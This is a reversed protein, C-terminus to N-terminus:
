YVKIYTESKLIDLWRDYLEKSRAKRVNEEIDDYAEAFSRTQAVTEDDKRILFSWGDLEVWGSTEGKSLSYIANCIEPRFVDECQIDRWAGGQPAHTDASRRRAVDAFDMTKLEELVTDRLGSESPKLLIVSVSVSDGKMYREPHDAYESRMAAPSATVFKDVFNWRMAGVVLDDKIRQRFETFPLKERALAAVLQNRDGGFNADVIERIRNDVVWEQMTMKSEGAAKMILKRDILRALVTDYDDGAQTGFRNMESRVESRLITATGVTAAVGDVEVAFAAAASLALGLGLCLRAQAQAQRTLSKTNM